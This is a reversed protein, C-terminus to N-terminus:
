LLSQLPRCLLEKPWAAIIEDAIRSEYYEGREIFEIAAITALFGAGYPVVCNKEILGFLGKCMAKIESLHERRNNLKPKSDEELKRLKLIIEKEEKTLKM